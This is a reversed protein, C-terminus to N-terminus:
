KSYGAREEGAVSPFYCFDGWQNLRLDGSKDPVNANIDSTSRTDDPWDVDVVRINKPKEGDVFTNRYISPNDVQNWTPDIHCWRNEGKHYYEVTEHAKDSGTRTWILIKMRAPIGNARLVSVLAVAKEDCMGSCRPLILSDSDIYVDINDTMDYGIKKFVRRCLRYAIQHVGSVNSVTGFKVVLPDKPHHLENTSEADEIGPTCEDAEPLVQPRTMDIAVGDPDFVYTKSDSGKSRIRWTLKKEPGPGPIPTAGALQEKTFGEARFSTEAAIYSNAVEEKPFIDHHIVIPPGGAPQEIVVFFIESNTIPGEDQVYVVQTGDEDAPLSGWRALEHSDDWTKFPGYNVVEPHAGYLDAVFDVPPGAAWLLSGAFLLFAFSLTLPRM